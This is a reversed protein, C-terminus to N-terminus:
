APEEALWIAVTEPALAEDIVAEARSEVEALDVTAQLEGAVRAVVSAADYRSRFFRRDVWARVRRLLPVSVAVAVLTSIAVALDEQVPLALQMLTVLGAYVAVMAAVVVGYSVTRSVIRDIEYLKYRTIAIVFGAPVFVVSSFVLWGPLPFAISATGILLFLGTALLVWAMQRRQVVGARRTRTVVTWFIVVVSLAAIPPFGFLALVLLPFTGWFLWGIWRTAWEGDPFRAVAAIVIIQVWAYGSGFVLDFIQLWLPAEPEYGGAPLRMDAFFTTGVQFALMTMASSLGAWLFLRGIAHRPIARLIMLGALSFSVAWVGFDGPYEFKAFGGGAIAFALSVSLLIATAGLLVSRETVNM